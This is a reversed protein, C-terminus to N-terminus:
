VGAYLISLYGSPSTACIAYLADSAGLWVQVSAGNALSNGINAGTATVTADGLFIAAGTGNYIQCAILGGIGSPMQVIKGATTTVQSNSHVLAM